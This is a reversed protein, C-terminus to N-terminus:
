KLNSKIYKRYCLFLTDVAMTYVNFFVITLLYICIGVFIAPVFTYTIKTESVYELITYTICGIGIAILLKSLFFLFDVVKDLVFTRLINRLLLNFADKASSCFNKGHIACMIYANRNIFKIFKELCYFCCKLCCLIAKTIENDYKKLKSDIYELLVRIM